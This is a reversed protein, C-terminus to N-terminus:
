GKEEDGSDSGKEKDKDKKKKKKEKEEGEGKRRRRVPDTARPVPRVTCARGRPCYSSWGGAVFPNHAYRRARLDRTSLLGIGRASCGSGGSGYVWATCDTRGRAPCVGEHLFLVYFWHAGFV